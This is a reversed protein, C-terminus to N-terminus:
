ILAISEAWGVGESKNTWSKRYTCFYYNTAEFKRSNNLRM